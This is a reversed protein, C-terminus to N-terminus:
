NKALVARTIRVRASKTGLGFVGGRGEDLIEVDVDDITLGLAALGEETAETVTRGLFETM